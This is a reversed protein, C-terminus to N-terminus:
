FLSYGGGIAGAQFELSEDYTMEVTSPINTM